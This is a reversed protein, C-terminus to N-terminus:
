DKRRWILFRQDFQLYPRGPLFSVAAIKDAVNFIQVPDYHGLFWSNLNPDKTVLEGPRQVIWRPNLAAILELRNEGIKRRAAVVEPAALGPYDLMKLQSYYGIYGLPELFVSDSPSSRHARLWEGIAQREGEIIRRQQRLQWSSALLLSGSFAIATVGIATPFFPRRVVKLAAELVGGVVLAVLMALPPFYWPYPQVNALYVVAVALAVSLARTLGDAKPLLYALLAILVLARGLYAIFHPWGGFDLAYSPLLIYDWRGSVWSRMPLTVFQFVLSPWGPLPHRLGKAVVTHPVASGYYHWAWLFWPLYLAACVIGAKLYMGTLARRGGPSWSKPAFIWWGAAIGGFFMFGDPRTWLLAAWCCGLSRGHRGPDVLLQRISLALFLLVFATEMGNVSFSVSKADTMVLGAAVASPFPKWGLIRTISWVTAVAGAFASITLSRFIWLTLEDSHGGTAWSIIGPLLVGLPSTFSHVKEGAQFVLGLGLALNKSVRFTIYYDEWRQDTFLAFALAIAAALVFLAGPGVRSPRPPQHPANSSTM